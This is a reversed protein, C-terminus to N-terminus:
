RIVLFICNTLFNQLKLLCSLCRTLVRSRKVSITRLRSEQQIFQSCFILKGKFFTQLINCSLLCKLDSLPLIKLSIAPSQSNKRNLFCHDLIFIGVYIGVQKYFEFTSIQLWYFNSLKGTYLHFKWQFGM